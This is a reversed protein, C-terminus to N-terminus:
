EDSDEPRYPGTKGKLYTRATSCRKKWSSGSLNDPFADCDSLYQDTAAIRKELEQVQATLYGPDNTIAELKLRENEAELEAIRARLYHPPDLADLIAQEREAELEAVRARLRGEREIADTHNQVWRTRSDTLTLVNRELEAVKEQAESKELALKAIVEAARANSERAARLDARLQTAIQPPVGQEIKFLEGNVVRYTGEPFSLAIETLPWETREGYFLETKYVYPESAQHEAETPEFDRTQRAWERELDNM